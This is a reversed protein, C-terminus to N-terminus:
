ASGGPRSTAPRAGIPRPEPAALAEAPFAHRTKDWGLPQGHRRHRWYLLSARLLAAYNVLAGALYRPLVLPLHRSGYVAWVWAHRLALRYFLFCLNLAALHWLLSDDALLPPPAWDPLHRALLSRGLLYLLGVHGILTVPGCLLLKRDRLFLYRLAPSGRWGFREWAQFSIGLIWRAKQKVAAGFDHPFLERTAILDRRTQLARGPGALRRLFLHRTGLRALRLSLDYDETMMGCSFAEGGNADRAALLAARGYATAVGSGPVIGSLAARVPVEKGHMEAFEDLYHGGVLRGLGAILPLVPLQVLDWPGVLRNFCALAEPHALDEADQLVFAAFRQGQREEWALAAALAANLCDAKCTPGPRPVAVAVVRPDAAALREVVARTAPDNPYCGVFVRFDRYRASALLHGLSQPLVEAEQWAPLLVALPREPPAPGSLLCEAAAQEPDGVLRLSLWFLDVFCDEISSLVTVFLAFAFALGVLLLFATAAEELLPAGM